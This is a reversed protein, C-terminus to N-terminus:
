RTETGRSFYEPVQTLTSWYKAWLVPTSLSLVSLLEPLQGWRDIFGAKFFAFAINKNRPKSSHCIYTLAPQFGLPHGYGPALSAVGQTTPVIHYGRGTLAFTNIASCM